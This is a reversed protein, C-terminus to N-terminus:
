PTPSSVNIAILYLYTPYLPTVGFFIICCMPLLVHILIVINSLALKLFIPVISRPISGYIDFDVPPIYVVEGLLKVGPVDCGTSIFLDANRYGLHPLVVIECLRTKDLPLLFIFPFLVHAMTLIYKPLSYWYQVCNEREVAPLPSLNSQALLM